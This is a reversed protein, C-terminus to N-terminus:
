ENDQKLVIHKYQPDFYDFKIHFYNLVHFVIAYKILNIYFTDLRTHIYDDIHMVLYEKIIYHSSFVILWGAYKNMGNIVRWYYMFCCLINMYLFFSLNASLIAFINLWLTLSYLYHWTGVGIIGKKVLTMLFASFQIALVPIYATNASELMYYTAVLQMFSHMRIIELKQQYELHTMYPMIRMTTTNSKYARTIIDALKMTIVCIMINITYHLGYCHVLCCIISRFTFLLNHMRFEPYIIPLSSHRNKSIHFIFSSTSLLCHILLTLFGYKSNMQMDQYFILLCFRYTYLALSTIGLIKHVQLSDEKTILKYLNAYNVMKTM